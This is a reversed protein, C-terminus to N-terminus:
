QHIALPIAELEAIAQSLGSLPIPIGTGDKEDLFIIFVATKGTRLREALVGEVIMQAYCGSAQCRVFPAHGIDIDDIKLGLGPPLLVGSPTLVRLFLKGDSFKEISLALSIKENGAAIVNQVVACIEHKAGPPPPACTIKWDGHQAIVRSRGPLTSQASASGITFLLLLILYAAQRM